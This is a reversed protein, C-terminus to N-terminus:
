KPRSFARNRKASRRKACDEAVGSEQVAATLQARIHLSERVRQKTIRLGHVVSTHDRDMAKGIEQQTLGLYKYAAFMLAHRAVCIRHKRCRGRIDQPAVDFARGVWRLLRDFEPNM